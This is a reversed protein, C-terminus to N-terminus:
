PFVKIVDPGVVVKQLLVFGLLLSAPYGRLHEVGEVLMPVLQVCGGFVDWKSWLTGMSNFRVEVVMVRDVEANLTEYLGELLEVPGWCWVLDDTFAARVIQTFIDCM